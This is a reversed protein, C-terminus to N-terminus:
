SADRELRRVAADVAYCAARLTEKRATKVPALAEGRKGCAFGRFATGDVDVAEVKGRGDVRQFVVGCRRPIASWMVPLEGVYWAGNPNEDEDPDHFDPPHECTDTVDDTCSAEFVPTCPLPEPEEVDEVEPVFEFVPEREGDNMQEIASVLKRWTPTSDKSIAEGIDDLLKLFNTWNIGGDPKVVYALHELHEQDDLELDDPAVFGLQGIDHAVRDLYYRNRANPESDALSRLLAVLDDHEGNSIQDGIVISSCLAAQYGNLVQTQTSM